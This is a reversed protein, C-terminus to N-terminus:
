RKLNHPFFRAFLSSVPVRSMQFGVSIGVNQVICCFHRHTQYIQFQHKLTSVVHMSMNEPHKQLFIQGYHCVEGAFFRSFRTKLWCTNLLCDPEEASDSSNM